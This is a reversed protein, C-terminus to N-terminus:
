VICPSKRGLLLRAACAQPENLVLCKVPEHQEHDECVAHQHREVHRRAHRRAQADEDGLGVDEKQAEVRHLQEDAHDGNPQM